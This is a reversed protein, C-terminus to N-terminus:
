PQRELPVTALPTLSPAFVNPIDRKLTSVLGLDSSSDNFGSVM